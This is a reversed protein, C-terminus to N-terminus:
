HLYSTNELDHVIFDNAFINIHCKLIIIYELINFNQNEPVQIM